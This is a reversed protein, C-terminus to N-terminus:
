KIDLAKRFRAESKSKLAKYFKDRIEPIEFVSKLESVEIISEYFMRFFENPNFQTKESEEIKLLTNHMKDLAILMGELSKANVITNGYDDLISNMGAKLMLQINAKIQHIADLEAQITQEIRKQRLEARKSDWEYIRKWKRVVASTIEPHNTKLERAIRECTYGRLYLAFADDKVSDPFEVM